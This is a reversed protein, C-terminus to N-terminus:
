QQAFFPCSKHKFGEKYENYVQEVIDKLEQVNFSKDKCFEVLASENKLSVSTVKPKSYPKKPYSSKESLDM